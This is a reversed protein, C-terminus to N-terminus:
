NKRYKQKLWADISLAGPGFALVILCVLLFLFPSQQICGQPDQFINMLADHFVTVYAGVMIGILPLAVLRAGLGLALCVGGVFEVVGVCYASLYPLPIELSRFFPVVQEINVLKGFGAEAFCVGWYLRLLLLLFPQLISGLSVLLEYCYKM